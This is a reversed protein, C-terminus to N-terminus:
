IRGSNQFPARRLPSSRDEPRGRTLLTLPRTSIRMMTAAHRAVLARVEQVPHERIWGGRPQRPGPSVPQVFVLRVDEQIRVGRWYEALPAHGRQVAFPTNSYEASEARFACVMREVRGAWASKDGQMFSEIHMARKKHQNQRRVNSM